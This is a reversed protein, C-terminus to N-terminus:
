SVKEWRVEGSVDNVILKYGELTYNQNYCSEEASSMQVWELKDNFVKNEKLIELNQAYKLAEEESSVFSLGFDLKLYKNKYKFDYSAVEKIAQMVQERTYNEKLEM